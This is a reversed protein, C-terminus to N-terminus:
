ENFIYKVIDKSSNKPNWDIELLRHWLAVVIQKLDNVSGDITSYPVKGQNYRKVIDKTAGDLDGHSIKSRIGYLFKLNEMFEYNENLLKSVYLPIKFSVESQVDSFFSEIVFFYLPVRLEKPSSVSMNYMKCSQLMGKMKNINKSIFQSFDSIDSDLKYKTIAEKTLPPESYKEGQKKAYTVGKVFHFEEKYDGVFRVDAKKYLKLLTSLIPAIDEQSHLKPHLKVETTISSTGVLSWDNHLRKKIESPSVKNFLFLEPIEFSEEIELHEFILLEENTEVCFDQYCVTNKLARITAKNDFPFSTPKPVIKYNPHANFAENFIDSFIYQVLGYTNIPEDSESNIIKNLKSFGSSQEFYKDVENIKSHEISFSLFPEDKIGLNIIKRVTGNKLLDSTLFDNFIEFLINTVNENVVCDEDQQM